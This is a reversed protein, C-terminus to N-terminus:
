VLPPISLFEFVSLESSKLSLLLLYPPSSLQLLLSWAISPYHSLGGEKKLSSSCIKLKKEQKHYIHNNHLFHVREKWESSLTAIINEHWFLEHTKVRQASSVEVGDWRSIECFAYFHFIAVKKALFFLAENGGMSSTLRWELVQQWVQM